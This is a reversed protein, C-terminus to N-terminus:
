PRSRARKRGAPYAEVEAQEFAWRGLSGDTIELFVYSGRGRMRYRPNRGPQLFGNSSSSGLVDATPTVFLRFTAGGQDQALVASLSTLRVEEESSAFPGMMVQSFIAVGDDTAKDSDFAFLHGDGAELSANGGTGILVRRDDPDDGDIVGIATPQHSRAAADMYEVPWWADVDREWFWHTYSTTVAGYPFFMVCLGEHQYDWELRVYVASLDVSRLEDDIQESISHPLEGPIMRYVSGKSGFFYILGDPDKCWAKGFAIGTQDSLLDIQGNEAPDGTFRWLTRDGGVILLDDNYPILANAIDPLVGSRELSGQVAQTVTAIAPFFDWNTADGQKSMHWESPDDGRALVIRDRWACILKCRPPIKGISAVWDSLEGNTSNTIDRPNYTQYKMGDIIWAKQQAIAVQVFDKTELLGSTSNNPNIIAITAPDTTWDTVTFLKVDGGEIVIHKNTRPSGSTLTAVTFLGGAIVAGGVYIREPLIVANDRYDPISTDVAAAWGGFVALSDGQSFTAASTGDSHFGEMAVGDTTDFTCPVWVNAFKDTDLGVQFNKITYGAANGTLTATWASTITGAQAVTWKQVTAATGTSCTYLNANDYFRAGFGYGITGATGTESDLVAGDADDLIFLEKVGTTKTAAKVAGSLAIKGDMSADIARWRVDATVGVVNGSLVEDQDPASTTYIHDYVLIGATGADPSAAHPRYRGIYLRGNKLRCCTPYSIGHFKRWILQWLGDQDREFRYTRAVSNGDADLPPDGAPMTGDTILGVVVFLNGFGDSDFQVIRPSVTAGADMPNPVAITDKLNGTEDYVQIRNDNVQIFLTGSADRVMWGEYDVFSAITTGFEGTIIPTGTTDEAWTMQRDDLTLPEIWQIKEGTAIAGCRYASPTTTGSEGYAGWFWGRENITPTTRGIEIQFIRAQTLPPFGWAAGTVMGIHCRYWGNGVSTVGSVVGTNNNGIGAFPDNALVTVVGAGDVAFTAGTISGGQEFWLAFGDLQNAGSTPRKVYISFCLIEATAYFSDSQLYVAVAAGATSKWLEVAPNPTIEGFPNPEGAVIIELGANGNKTWAGGTTDFTEPDELFNTGGCGAPSQALRLLGNRQAGRIRGTRSDTSRVNLAARCTDVQQGSAALLDSRGKLPFRLPLSAM